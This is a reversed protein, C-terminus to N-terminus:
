KGGEPNKEAATEKLIADDKAAQKGAIPAGGPAGTPPTVAAMPDEAPKTERCGTLCLASVTLIVAGLALPRAPRLPAAMSIKNLFM